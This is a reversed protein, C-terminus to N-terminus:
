QIRSSSFQMRNSEMELSVLNQRRGLKCYISFLHQKSFIKSIVKLITMSIRNKYDCVLFFDLYVIFPITHPFEVGVRGLRWYLLAM